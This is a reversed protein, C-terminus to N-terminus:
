SSKEPEDTDTDFLIQDIGIGFGSGSWGVSFM